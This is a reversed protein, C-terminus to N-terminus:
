ISIFLGANYYYHTTINKSSKLISNRKVELALSVDDTISQVLNLGFGIGWFGDHMEKRTSGDTYLSSVYQDPENKIIMIEYSNYNIFNYGLELNAFINFTKINSILMKSGIYLPFLKHEDENYCSYYKSKDEFVLQNKDWTYLGTYAYIKFRESLTHEFEINTTFGKIESSPVMIGCSVKIRDNSQATINSFLIVLAIFSIISKM